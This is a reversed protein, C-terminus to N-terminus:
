KVFVALNEIAINEDSAEQDSCVRVEISGLTHNPLQKIFWPLGTHNCCPGETGGCMEGDWLPDAIGFGNSAIFAAECYYDNGVYVPVPDSINSNCPCNVNIPLDGEESFGAAYTWVHHPPTGYTISVGDVYNGSLSARVGGFADPSQYSYGRAYGCVQSYTIGFTETPLAVCGEYDKICVRTDNVTETSFNTPCQSSTDTMNVNLYAVRTWGGDGGCNTGEMDCYVEVQSGNAAQIQYYGSSASSNCYLIDACSDRTTRLCGQPPLRQHATALAELLQDDFLADDSQCDTSLESEVPNYVIPDFASGLGFFLLLQCCVTSLYVSAM